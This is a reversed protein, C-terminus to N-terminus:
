VSSRNNKACVLRCGRRLQGYDEVFLSSLATLQRGLSSISKSLETELALDLKAIQETAKDGIQKMHEGIRSNTSQLAEEVL